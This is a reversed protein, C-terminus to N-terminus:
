VKSMLILREFGVYCAFKLAEYKNHKMYKKLNERSMKSFLFIEKRAIPLLRIQGQSLFKEFYKKKTLKESLIKYKRNIILNDIESERRKAIKKAADEIQSM